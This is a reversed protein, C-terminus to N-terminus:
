RLSQSVAGTSDTAEIDLVCPLTGSITLASPWNPLSSPPVSWGFQGNTLGNTMLGNTTSMVLLVGPNTVNLRLSSTCVYHWTLDLPARSFTIPDNIVAVTTATSFTLSVSGISNPAIITNPAMGYGVAVMGPVLGTVSSLSSVAGTSGDITGTVQIPTTTFGPQFVIFQDLLSADSAITITTGAPIQPLNLLNTM